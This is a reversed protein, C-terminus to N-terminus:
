QASDLRAQAGALDARAEDLKQNLEKVDLAAEDAQEKLQLYNNEPVTGDNALPEMRNVQDQLYDLYVNKKAVETTAQDVRSQAADVEAAGERKTSSLLHSGYTFIFITLVLGLFNTARM